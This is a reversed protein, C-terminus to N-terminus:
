RYSEIKSKCIRRTMNQLKRIRDTLYKLEKGTIKYAKNYRAEVYARRLLSFCRSEWETKRPFVKKFRVDCGAIRKGLKELDHTKPKYNTFVLLVASCLRETAQHLHFASNKYRRKLLNTKCDDYAEKASRFWGKFEEEANRRREKSSLKKKRALKYKKSDYLLMGETVVDTFFYQGKALKKNVENIDHVILSVDTGIRRDRSIKNEVKDWLMAAHATGPKAVVVLLDYDSRYEYTINGETYEDEVWDGRAYSGFLIIKEVKVAGLIISVVTNLEERKYKPLHTLSKKM